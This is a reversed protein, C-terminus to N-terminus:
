FDATTHGLTLLTLLGAKIRSLRPSTSKAESELDDIHDSAEERVDEPLSPLAERIDRILQVAQAPTIGAQQYVTSSISRGTNVAGVPAHYHQVVQAAFHETSAGPQIIMRDLERIGAASIRVVGGHEVLGEDQLQMIAVEFEEKPVSMEARIEEEPVGRLPNGGAMRYLTRLLDLRTKQRQLLLQTTEDFM